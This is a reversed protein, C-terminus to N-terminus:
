PKKGFYIDGFATQDTISVKQLNPSWLYIQQAADKFQPADWTARNRERAFNARWHAGDAPMPAELTSFPIAVELTWVKREADITFAHKWEPNWSTDEANALVLPNLPDDIYGRRGDYVGTAFPTAIFHMYKLGEAFPDFLIEICETRWVPGDLKCERVKMDAILPEECEFAVYLAKDDYGMRMRTPTEIKGMAIENLTIPAVDKWAADDLKGDLVPAQSLRRIVASNRDRGPLLNAALIADFDWKFPSGIQKYNTRVFKKWLDYKPFYDKVFVPDTKDLGEIEDVFKRFVEVAQQVQKLNEVTRNIEYAAYLHTVNAMLRIQRRSYDALRLWNLAREDGAAMDKAQAMLADARELVAAPYNKVLSENLSLGGDDRGLRSQLAGYYQVMVMGSKGYLLNCYENLVLAPSIAPDNMLCGAMYYAPGEAGWNECGGCWYIGRIGLKYLKKVERAITAPSQKPLLGRLQWAGFYYVYETAGGPAKPAWLKVFDEDVSALEFVTNPPYETVIRSPTKTPGYIIMGVQKGPHTKYVAQMVKSHCVHVQETEYGDGLAKCRPCHCPTFGDSQGLQVLDYGEDFEKRIGDALLKMVDPDTPCLFHNHGAPKMRQGNKDMAFYEPHQEWLSAPVFPEWTHGGQTYFTVAIRFGNAWSWEGFRDFRSMSYMFPPTYTIDLTDPAALTKDALQPLYTGKDGPVVWRFGLQQLLGFAAQYTGRTGAWGSIKQPDFPLDRGLVYLTNGKVVLRYGDFVLKDDSVGAKGARETRGVSIINMKAEAPESVIELRAGTALQIYKQLLQAAAQESANPEKPLVITGASAGTKVLDLAQASPIGSLIVATLMVGLINRM